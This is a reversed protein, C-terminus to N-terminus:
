SKNVTAMLKLEDLFSEPMLNLVQKMTELSSRLIEEQSTLARLQANLKYELFFYYVRMMEDFHKGSQKKWDIRKLNGDLLQPFDEEVEKLTIDFKLNHTKAYRDLVDRGFRKVLVEEIEFSYPKSSVVVEKQSKDAFCFREIDHNM